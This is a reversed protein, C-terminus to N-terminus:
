IKPWPAKRHPVVDLNGGFLGGLNRGFFFCFNDSQSSLPFRETHYYSMFGHLRVYLGGGWSAMASELDMQCREAGNGSLLFRHFSPDLKCFVLNIGM